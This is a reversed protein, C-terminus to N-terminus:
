NLDAGRYFILGHVSSEARAATSSLRVIAKERLDELNLVGIDKMSNLIKTLTSAVGIKLSGAYEVYGDVGEEFDIQRGSNQKYRYEAEPSRRARNSGEGWYEKVEKITPLRKEMHPFKKFFKKKSLRKGPAEDFRAFYRGMMLADAGLALAICMERATNIGGDAIIPVHGGNGENKDREDVCEMITTAQGKGTAKVDTTICISGIGMGVKVGQAGWKVLNSYGYDNIINGGVRPIDPWKKCLFELTEKQFERNGHASDVFLVDVGAEALAPIREEYDKTNIAAGVCLRGNKDTLTKLPYKYDELDVDSQKVSNVMAAQNKIPQSCFLVGLGGCRALEAASVNSTVAQMAASLLPINIKFDGAIRTSLDVEELAFERSTYGTELTFESLSHTPEM